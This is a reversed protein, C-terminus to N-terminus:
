IKSESVEKSRAFFRRTPRIFYHGMFGGIRKKGLGARIENELRTLPCQERTFTVTLIFSNLPVWIWLPYMFPLVFFATINVVIVAVHFTVLASLGLSRWLDVKPVSSLHLLRLMSLSERLSNNDTYKGVEDDLREFLVRAEDQDLYESLIKGIQQAEKDTTPV